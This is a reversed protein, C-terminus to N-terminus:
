MSEFSIKEQLPRNKTIETGVAKQSNSVTVLARAASSKPLFLIEAKEMDQTVLDGTEKWLPGVIERTKREDSDYKYFGKKKGKVDRIM